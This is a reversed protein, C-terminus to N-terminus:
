RRRASRLRWKAKFWIRPLLHPSPYYSAEREDQPVGAPLRGTAAIDDLLRSMLRPALEGVRRALTAFTDNARIPEEAQAIIRGSDIGDDLRYLTLGTTAEHKRLAWWLPYSGRYRPLLSPHLGVAGVTATARGLPGVKWHHGAVVILDSSFARLQPLSTRGSCVDLLAASPHSMVTMTVAVTLEDHAAGLVLVQIQGTMRSARPETPHPDIPQSKM